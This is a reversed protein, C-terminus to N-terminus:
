VFSYKFIQDEFVVDDEIIDFLQRLPLKMFSPVVNQLVWDIRFLTTKLPLDENELEKNSCNENKEAQKVFTFAENALSRHPCIDLGCLPRWNSQYYSSSALLFRLQQLSSLRKLM